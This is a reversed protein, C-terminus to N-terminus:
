RVECADNFTQYSFNSNNAKCVDAIEAQLNRIARYAKAEPDPGVARKAEKIAAALQRFHKRSM